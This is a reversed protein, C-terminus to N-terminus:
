RDEIGRDEEGDEEEDLLRRGLPVDHFYNRNMKMALEKLENELNENRLNRLEEDDIHMRFATMRGGIENVRSQRMIKDNVHIVERRLKGYLGRVTSLTNKIARKTFLGSDIRRDTMSSVTIRSIQRKM